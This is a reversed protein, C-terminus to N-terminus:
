LWTGRIDPFRQRRKRLVLNTVFEGLALDSQPQLRICLRAYCSPKKQTELTVSHEVGICRDICLVDGCKTM